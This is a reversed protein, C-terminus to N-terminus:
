SLYVVCKVLLENSALLVVILLSYFAAFDAYKVALFQMDGLQM